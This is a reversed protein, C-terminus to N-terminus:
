PTRHIGAVQAQAQELAIRYDRDDIRAILDGAVVHQNDTVPVATIYGSVKPAVAFQRSAVFADDTWEFHSAFDWYIYGGALATASIFLVVASAIPRRSKAHERSDKADGVWQKTKPETVEGPRTAPNRGQAVEGRAEGTGRALAPNPHQEPVVLVREQRTDRDNGALMQNGESYGDSRAPVPKSLEALRPVRLTIDM